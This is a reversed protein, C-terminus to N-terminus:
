TASSNKSLCQCHGSSYYSTTISDIVQQQKGKMGKGKRKGKMGKSKGNGKGIRKDKYMGKM